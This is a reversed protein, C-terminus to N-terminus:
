RTKWCNPNWARTENTAIRRDIDYFVIPETM